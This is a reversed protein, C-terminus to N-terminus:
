LYREEVASHGTAKAAIVILKEMTKYKINFAEAIFSEQPQVSCLFSCLDQRTFGPLRESSLHGKKNQFHFKSTVQISGVSINM